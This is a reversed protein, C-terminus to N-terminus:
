AGANLLWSLVERESAFQRINTRGTFMVLADILLALYRGAGVIASKTVYQKNFDFLGKVDDVLEREFHEVRSVDALIRVDGPHQAARAAVTQEVERVWGVFEEKVARTMRGGVTLRIIGQEDVICSLTVSPKLSSPDTNMSIMRGLLLTWRLM